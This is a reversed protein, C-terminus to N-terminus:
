FRFSPNRHMFALDSVFDNINRTFTPQDLENEKAVIATLYQRMANSATAPLQAAIVAPIIEFCFRGM